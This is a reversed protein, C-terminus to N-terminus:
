VKTGPHLTKGLCAIDLAGLGLGEADQAQSSLSNAGHYVDYDLVVGGELALM